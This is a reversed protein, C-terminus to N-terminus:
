IASVYFHVALCAMHVTNKLTGSLITKGAMLLDIRMHTLQTGSTLLAMRGFCPQGSLEIVIHSGELQCTRVDIDATFGAVYGPYVFVSGFIAERTMCGLIDVFTLIAPITSGTM